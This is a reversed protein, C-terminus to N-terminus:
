RGAGTAFNLVYIEGAKKTGVFEGRANVFGYRNPAIMVPTYNARLDAGSIPKGNRHYASTPKALALKQEFQAQTMNVPLVVAKGNWEGVGGKRVGNTTTGGLATNISARFLQENFETEGRRAMAQAYVAVAMQYTAGTATQGLERTAASATETWVRRAEANDVKVKGSELVAQGEYVLQRNNVGLGLSAKFVIDDPAVQEAALGAERGGFSRLQQAALMRGQPTKMNARMQHAEEDTLLRPPVGLMKAAALAATKRQAITAPNNWDIPGSAIGNQAAVALPDASAESTRATLLSQLADRRVTLSAPVSDGKAAIQAQVQKLAADIQAPAAARYTRNVDNTIGLKALDYGQKDLGLTTATDVLSKLQDDPIVAGDKLQTIVLDIQERSEALKARQQAELEVQARRIEVDANSNLREVMEPTLMGDLAGSALLAKAQNPPKGLVWNFTIKAVGEKELALRVDAPMNEMDAVGNRFDQLEQDFEEAPMDRSVRNAILDIGTQVNTVGLKATQGREYGEFRVRQDAAWEAMQAQYRQRVIPDKISAIFSGTEKDLLEAMSKSFGAAGPAQNDQADLAAMAIREKTAAADMLAQAAALDRDQQQKLRLDALANEGVMDGISGLVDGIGAGLQQPNAQGVASGVRQPAIQRQYPDVM